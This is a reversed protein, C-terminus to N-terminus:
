FSEDREAIILESLSGAVGLAKAAAILEQELVPMGSDATAQPRILGADMLAEYVSQQVRANEPLALPALPRLVGQAYNVAITESM